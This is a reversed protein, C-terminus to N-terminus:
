GRVQGRISVKSEQRQGQGQGQGQVRARPIARVTSDQGRIRGRGKGQMRAKLGVRVQSEQGRGRVKLGVRCKPVAYQGSKQSRAGSSVGAGKGAEQGQVRARPITM